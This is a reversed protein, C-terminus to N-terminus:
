GTHLFFIAMLSIHDSDIAKRRLKFIHTILLHRYRHCRRRRRRRRRRHRCPHHKNIKFKLLHLYVYM